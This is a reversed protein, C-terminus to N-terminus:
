SKITKAYEAEAEKRTYHEAESQRANHQGEVKDLITDLYGWWHQVTNCQQYFRRLADSIVEPTYTREAAKVWRILYRFKVNDVAYIKDTWEQIVPDLEIPWFNLQKM